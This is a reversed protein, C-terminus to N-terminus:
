LLPRGDRSWGCGLLTCDCCHDQHQFVNQAFRSSPQVPTIYDIIYKLFPSKKLRLINKKNVNSLSSLLFVLFPSTSSSSNEMLLIYIIKHVCRSRFTEEIYMSLTTMWLAWKEVIFGRLQRPLTHGYDFWPFGCVMEDNELSFLAMGLSM